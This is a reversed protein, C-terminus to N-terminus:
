SFVRVIYGGLKMDLGVSEYCREDREPIKRKILPLSLKQWKENIKTCELLMYQLIFGSLGNNGCDM